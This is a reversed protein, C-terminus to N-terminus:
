VYTPLGRFIMRPAGPSRDRLMELGVVLSSAATRRPAATELVSRTESHETERVLDFIEIPARTRPGPSHAPAIPRHAARRAQRVPRLACTVPRAATWLVAHSRWRAAPSRPRRAQAHRRSGPQVRRPARHDRSRGRRGRGRHTDDDTTRREHLATRDAWVHPGHTSAPDPFRTAPSSGLHMPALRAANSSDICSRMSRHGVPEVARRSARLPSNKGAGGPFRPAPL